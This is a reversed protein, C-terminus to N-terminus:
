ATKEKVVALTAPKIRTFIGLLEKRDVDMQATIEELPLVHSDERGYIEAHRTRFHDEAIRRALHKVRHKGLPRPTTAPSILNLWYSHFADNTFKGDELLQASVDTIPLAATPHGSDIGDRAVTEIGHFITRAQWNAGFDDAHVLACANFAERNSLETLLVMLYENAHDHAPTTPLTTSSM